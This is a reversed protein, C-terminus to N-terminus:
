KKERIISAVAFLEPTISISLDISIQSGLTNITKNNGSINNIDLSSM